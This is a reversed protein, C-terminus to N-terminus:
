ANDEEPVNENIDTRQQEDEEPVNKNKSSRQQRQKAFRLWEAVISEFETETVTVHRSLVQRRMIQILKLDCIKFNDRRGKWSCAMAFDNTFVNKLIRHLNDRPNNGGIKILFRNFQTVAEQNSKLIDEVHRIDEIESIPFFQRILSDDNDMPEQLVRKKITDELRRLRETNDKIALNGAAVLRQIAKVSEQLGQISEQLHFSVPFESTCDQIIIDQVNQVLEDQKRESSYIPSNGNNETAAEIYSQSLADNNRNGYTGNDQTHKNIGFNEPCAPAMLSLVKPQTQNQKKLQRYKTNELEDDSSYPQHPVHQRKGRGCRDEDTTNYNGDAASKRASELSSCYKIVEVEFNHWLKYNPNVCNAILMANNSSRPPWWCYATDGSKSIWNVPVESFTSDSLFKVVAYSKSSSSQSSSM